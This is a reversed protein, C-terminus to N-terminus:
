GALKRRLVAAGDRRLGTEAVLGDRKLESLRASSTTYPMQLDASVEKCTRGADNRGLYDLIRERLETKHPAVRHNAAESTASVRHRRRTIDPEPDFLTPHTTMGGRRHAMTGFRM